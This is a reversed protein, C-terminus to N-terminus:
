TLDIFSIDVINNSRKNKFQYIDKWGNKALTKKSPVNANTDTCLLITYGMHRALEIRFKNLLTNIGKKRYKASTWAGSPVCVGCCGPLQFLRFQAIEFDDYSDGPLKNSKVKFLCDEYYGRVLSDLKDKDRLLGDPEKSGAMDPNLRRNGDYRYYEIFCERGTIESLKKEIEIVDKSEM